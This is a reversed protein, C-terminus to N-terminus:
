GQHAYWRRWLRLQVLFTFWISRVSLVPKTHVHWWTGANFTCVDFKFQRIRVLRVYCPQHSRVMVMHLVTTAVGTEFELQPNHLRSRCVPRWLLHQGQYPPLHTKHFGKYHFFKDRTTVPVNVLSLVGARSLLLLSLWLFVNHSVLICFNAKSLNLIFSIWESMVAVILSSVARFPGTM